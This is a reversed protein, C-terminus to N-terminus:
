VRGLRLVLPWSIQRFEEPGWAEVLDRTIQDVPNFKHQQEFRVVASWSKLYGLVHQASWNAEIYFQPAAVEAFPFPLTRYNEAIWQREPPWFSDLTQSYLRNIM